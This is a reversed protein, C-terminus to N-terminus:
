LKDLLTISQNTAGILYDTGRVNLIFVNSQSGTAVRDMIKIDKSLHTKQIKKSFKLIVMLFGIIFLSSFIFKIYYGTDM